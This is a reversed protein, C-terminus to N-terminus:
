SPRGSQPHPLATCMPNLEKKDLRPSGQPLKLRRTMAAARLWASLFATGSFIHDTESRSGNSSKPQLLWLRPRCAYAGCCHYLVHTHTRQVHM